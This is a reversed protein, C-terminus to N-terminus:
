RHLERRVALTSVLDELEKLAKFASEREERVREEVKKLAELIKPANDIMYLAALILFRRAIRRDLGHAELIGSNIEDRFRLHIGNYDVELSTIEDLNYSRPALDGTDFKVSLLWLFKEAVDHLKTYDGGLEKFVEALKLLEEYVEMVQM